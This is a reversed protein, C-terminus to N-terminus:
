GHAISRLKGWACEWCHFNCKREGWYYAGGGTGYTCSWDKVSHSKDDESRSRGKGVVSITHRYILGCECQGTEGVPVIVTAGCIACQHLSDGNNAM